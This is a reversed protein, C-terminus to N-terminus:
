RSCAPRRWRPMRTNADPRPSLPTSAPSRTRRGSAPDIRWQDVVGQFAVSASGTWSAQLQMLQSMLASTEGELRDITGRVASTTALVQDSDQSFVAM